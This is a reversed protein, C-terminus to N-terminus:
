NSKVILMIFISFISMALHLALQLASVLITFLFEIIRLFFRVMRMVIEKENTM